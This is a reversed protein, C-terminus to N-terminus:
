EGAAAAAKAQEWVATMADMDLVGAIAGDEGYMGIPGYAVVFLLVEENEAAPEHVVGGPEYAYDGPGVAGEQYSWHGKITYVEAGGFHKHIPATVGAAFRILLTMGGCQENVRLLKFEAGELPMPAWPLKETNIMLAGPRSEVQVKSATTTTTM